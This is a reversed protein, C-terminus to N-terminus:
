TGIIYDYETLAKDQLRYKFEDDKLLYALIILATVAALGHTSIM